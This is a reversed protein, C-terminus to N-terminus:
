RRRPNKGYYGVNFGEDDPLTSPQPKVAVGQPTVAGELREKKRRNAAAAERAQHEAQANNAREREKAETLGAAVVAPNWTNNFMEQYEPTKSALWSQYAPTTRYTTYDPHVEALAKKARVFDDDTDQSPASETTVPKEATQQKHLRDAIVKLSKVIPGAYEPFEGAAVEAEALAAALDDIAPADETTSREQMQKLTRNINGIEGHLRRVTDTDAATSSVKAKLADLEAKLDSVNPAQPAEPQPEPETSAPSTNAEPTETAPTSEQETSPEPTAPEAPPELRAAKKEYGAMASALAEAENPETAPAEPGTEVVESM